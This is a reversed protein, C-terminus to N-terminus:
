LLGYSDNFQGTAKEGNVSLNQDCRMSEDGLSINAIEQYTLCQYM